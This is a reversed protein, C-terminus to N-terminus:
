RGMWEKVRWDLHKRNQYREILALETWINYKAKGQFGVRAVLNDDDIRREISVVVFRRDGNKETVLGSPIFSLVDLMSQVSTYFHIILKRATVDIRDGYDVFNDETAGKIVEGGTPNVGILKFNYDTTLPGHPGSSTPRLYTSSHLIDLAKETLISLIRRAEARIPKPLLSIADQETESPWAWFVKEWHDELFLCPMEKIDFGIESMALDTERDWNHFVLDGRTTLEVM